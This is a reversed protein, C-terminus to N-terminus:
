SIHLYKIHLHNTKEEHEFNKNYFDFELINKYKKKQKKKNKNQKRIYNKIKKFNLPFPTFGGYNCGRWRRSALAQNITLSQKSETMFYRIFHGTDASSYFM